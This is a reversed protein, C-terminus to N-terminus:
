RLWLSTLPNVNRQRDENLHSVPPGQHPAAFLAVTGPGAHTLLAAGVPRMGDLVVGEHQVRQALEKVAELNEAHALTLRAGEPFDKMFHKVLQELGRHFGRVRAVPQVLGEKVELLPLVNLLNGVFHQLTSIRGSRKLYELTKPLVLGRVRARFPAIARELNEWAVGAELKRRAEGLVYGLGGNFSLSDLVQVRGAFAAAVMKATSVFGSLKSSMHVSLVRQHNTLLNEYLTQFDAPSSHSTTVTKGAQLAESIQVPTIDLYDRYSKGELIVQALVLHIGQELAEQPSLGLTSDTVFATKM